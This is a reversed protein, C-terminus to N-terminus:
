PCRHPPCFYASACTPDLTWPRISAPRAPYSRFFTAPASRFRRLEDIAPPTVIRHFKEGPTLSTEPPTGNRPHLENV